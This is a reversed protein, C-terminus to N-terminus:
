MKLTLSVAYLLRYLKYRLSVKVAIKYNSPKHVVVNVTGSNGSGLEEDVVLDEARLHYRKRAPLVLENPEPILLQTQPIEERPPLESVKLPSITTGKLRRTRVALSRGSSQDSSSAEDSTRMPDM